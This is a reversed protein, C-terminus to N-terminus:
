SPVHPLPYPLVANQLAQIDNTPVTLSYTVTDGIVADTSPSSKVVQVNPASVSIQNINSVAAQNFTRGDPLTYAFSVTAQNSLQQSVPLTDIVVSFTVALTPGPPITGRAVGTAPNAGPPPFGNILLSNPVLTPGAPITDTLTATAAYNGTNSVNVTYIITDGVTAKVTSSSKAAGIVPQYVPTTVINSFAVSSLAGSTFSVSSQNNLLGSAPLSNVTVSFAVTVSAGPAISGITVGTSPSAGQRVVGDVLVSGPVFATGPPLADTFVVNNVAAIGNNTLTVSYVITDGLTAATTATSKVVALNPSTVPITVTNALVSGNLTRGDPLTFSYAATGQNVLLQPSPLSTIVACLVVAVAAGPAITGAAIGAAPNASPLSAGNVTVSGAVFSAGAPVPDSLIVNNVSVGSPNSVAVTYILNEGVAMSALSANKLLTIGPASVPLTVTNSLGSGSLSRGGPLQYTYSSSGQNNLVPPSPLSQVATLFTVTVAAGAAVAGLAIGGTPSDSPRAVGHVTVSGAVFASGGPVNDSPGGARALRGPHGGRLCL